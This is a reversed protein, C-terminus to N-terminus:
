NTLSALSPTTSTPTTTSRQGLEDLDEERMGSLRQAVTFLRDIIDARVEGLAEADADTFIREGKGNVCCYAVLKARLNQMSFESRRGKRQLCSAEFADRERGTMGRVTIVVDKGLEPVAVAESPVKASLLAERIDM